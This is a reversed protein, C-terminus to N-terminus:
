KKPKEDVEVEEKFPKVPKSYDIPVDCAWCRNELNTLAQACSECYNAGCKCIYSFGFVEGRCVLCIKKEKSIVVKEEMFQPILVTHKYFIGVFRKDLRALDLREAMPAESDKLIEWLDLKTLLDEKEAAIREVLLSLDFREAIQQAQTLFRQTKKIDFTLLSLKAQLLYTECLISYSHSKEAMDLLRDTLLTIEELVELDNTMRLETLLLQCLSILARSSDGFRSKKNELIQKFIEEAEVMNRARPNTKLILAKNLLYLINGREDKIQNILLKMDHLAQKARKIDGRDILIHILTDHDYALDRLNGLKHSLALSQESCELARDLDGRQRYAEGIYSLIWAVMYKNNIENFITLVQKYLMIAQDLNGKFSYLEAKRFNIFGICWKNGSEEATTIGQEYYKLARAYDGKVLSFVIGIGALSYACGLKSGFEERLVLSHEFQKLAQDADRKYIYFWGKLWAISAERQKYNTLVEQPLSKLLEEGQKIVNHLKDSQGLWNLGDAMRLLIDVSLLNKGLKLSEKYTQEALKVVDKYLGKWFLLECKLLHCMVLNRFTLRGKQEFDSILLEAEDLKFEDILQKIQILEEPKDKIKFLSIM